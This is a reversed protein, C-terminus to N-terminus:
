YHEVVPTKLSVEKVEFFKRLGSVSPDGTLLYEDAMGLQSDSLGEKLLVAFLRHELGRTLTPLTTTSVYPKDFGYDTGVVLGQHPLWFGLCRACGRQGPEVGGRRRHCDCRPGELVEEQEARVLASMPCPVSKGVFVITRPRSLPAAYGGLRGCPFSDM